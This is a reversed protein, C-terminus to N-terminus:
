REDEWYWVIVETSWYGGQDTHHFHSEELINVILDPGIANVFTKVEGLFTQLDVSRWQDVKRKKGTPMGTWFSVVDEEVPVLKEQPHYFQRRAIKVQRKREQRVAQVVTGSGFSM